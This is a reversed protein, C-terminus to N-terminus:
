PRDVRKMTYFRAGGVGGAGSGKRQRYRKWLEDSLKRYQDSIMSKNVSEDKDVFEFYHATRLAIQSAGDAEAYLLLLPVIETPVSDTSNLGHENMALEVWEAVDEEGINPVDKFRKALRETLGELNAM